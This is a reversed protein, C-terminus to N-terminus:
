EAAFDHTVTKESPRDLSSDPVPTVTVASQGPKVCVSNWSRAAIFM